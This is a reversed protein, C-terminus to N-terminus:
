SGDRISWIVLGHARPSFGVGRGVSEAALVEPSPSKLPPLQSITNRIEAQFQDLDNKMSYILTEQHERSRAIRNELRSAVSELEGNTKRSQESQGELLLEVLSHKMVAVAKEVAQSVLALTKSELGGVAEELEEVRQGVTPTSPVM